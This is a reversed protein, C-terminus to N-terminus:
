RMFRNQHLLGSGEKQQYNLPPGTKMILEATEFSKDDRHTTGVASDGDM